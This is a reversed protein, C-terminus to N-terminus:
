EFLSKWLYASPNFLPCLTMEHFLPIYYGGNKQIIHKIQKIHEIAIESSTAQYNLYAGDMVSFPIFLLNEVKENEFDYYYFPYSTGARFGKDSAFGMTFDYQIGAQILLKPTITIDTRLYHQRSAIIKEKITQELLQKEKQIIELKNLSYYSPHLGIHAFNKLKNITKQTDSHSLHAARDFSTDSRCLIFFIIPYHKSLEQIFNYVEELPDNKQHFLTQIREHLLISEKKVIHKLLAAITRFFHKGKFALINDLDFTLIEKYIYQTQFSPYYKQIFSKLENISIDIVPQHLTDKLISSKKEFRQHTDKTYNNQWEEYRSIFYFVESFIDKYYHTTTHALFHPNFNKEIANVQLLHLPFINIVNDFYKKSYNIKIKDSHLLESIHTTLYYNKQLVTKFIFDLTYKLRPSIFESYIIIEPSESINTHFLSDISFM